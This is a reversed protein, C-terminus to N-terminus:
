CITGPISCRIEHEPVWSYELVSIPFASPVRGNGHESVSHLYAEANTNWSSANMLYAATSSSSGIMSGFVLHHTVKDFDTQGIFVELSHLLTTKLSTYLSEPEFKDLKQQDLAQLLENGPFDIYLGEAKAHSVAHSDIDRIGCAGNVIRGM